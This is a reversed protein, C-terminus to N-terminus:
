IRGNPHSQYHTEWNWLNNLARCSEDSKNEKVRTELTGALTFDGEVLFSCLDSQKVLKFGGFTSLM